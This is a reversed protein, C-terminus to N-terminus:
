QKPASKDSIKDSLALLLASVIFTLHIAIQLVVKETSINQINIFSKLLDVGSISVLSVILKIKLTSENVKKLWDPREEERIIEIKNVFTWYGGIIVVVLLNIVMTVDILGLISLMLTKEDYIGFDIVLHFLEVFFRAAFLIAGVILGLYVPAQIWRSGYILKELVKELQKMTFQILSFVIM